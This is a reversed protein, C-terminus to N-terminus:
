TEQENNTAESEQTSSLWDLVELLVQERTDLKQWSMYWGKDKVEEAAKHARAAEHLIKDKLEEM